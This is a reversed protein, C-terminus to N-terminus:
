EIEKKLDNVNQFALESVYNIGKENFTKQILSRGTQIGKEQLTMCICAYGYPNNLM